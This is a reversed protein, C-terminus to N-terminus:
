ANAKVALFGNVKWGMFTGTNAGNFSGDAAKYVKGGEAVAADITVKLTVSIGPLFCSAQGAKLGQPTAKAPNTLDAATVRDTVPVVILGGAGYTTPIGNQTGDPVTLALTIGDMPSGHARTKM